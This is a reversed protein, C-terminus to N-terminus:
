KLRGNAASCNALRSTGALHLAARQPIPILWADIKRKGTSRWFLM